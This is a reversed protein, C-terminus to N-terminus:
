ATVAIGREGPDIGPRMATSEKSLARHWNLLAAATSITHHKAKSVDGEVASAAAKQALYGILWFWDFPSKGADHEAGWREIQHAAEYRVGNIWDTTTPTNILGELRAVELKAEALQRAASKGLRKAISFTLPGAEPHDAEVEVFNPASEGQLIGLIHEAIVGSLGTQIDFVFAGKGDPGARLLRADKFRGDLLARLRAIEKILDDRGADAGGVSAIQLVGLIRQAMRERADPSVARAIDADIDEAVILDVCRDVVQRHQESMRM